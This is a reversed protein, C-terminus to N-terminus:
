TVGSCLSRSLQQVLAGLHRDGDVDALADVEHEALVTVEERTLEREGALLGRRRM